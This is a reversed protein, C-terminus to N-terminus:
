RSTLSQHIFTNLRIAAWVVVQAPICTQVVQGGRRVVDVFHQDGNALFVVEGEPEATGDTGEMKGGGWWGLMVGEEGWWSLM